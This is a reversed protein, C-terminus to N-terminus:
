ARENFNKASPCQSSHDEPRAPQYCSQRYHDSRGTRHSGFWHLDVGLRTHNYFWEPQNTTNSLRARIDTISLKRKTLQEHQITGTPRYHRRLHFYFRKDTFHCQCIRGARQRIRNKRKVTLRTCYAVYVSMSISHNYHNTEYRIILPLSLTAVTKIKNHKNSPGLSTFTAHFFVKKM